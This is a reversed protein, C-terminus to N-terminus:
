AEMPSGSEAYQDLPVEREIALPQGRRERREARVTFVVVRRVVLEAFRAAPDLVDDLRRRGILQEVPDVLRQRVDVAHELAHAVERLIQAAHDVPRQLRDRRADVPQDLLFRVRDRVHDLARIPRHRRHRLGSGRTSCSCRTFM